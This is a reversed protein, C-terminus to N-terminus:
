IDEVFVEKEYVKLIRVLDKIGVRMRKEDPRIPEDLSKVDPQPDDLEYEKYPATTHSRSDYCLDVYMDAIREELKTGCEECYMKLSSKPNGGSFCKEVNPCFKEKPLRDETTLKKTKQEANAYSVCTTSIM